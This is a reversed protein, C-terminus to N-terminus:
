AAEAEAFRHTDYLIGLNDLTMALDPRYAAPNQVALEREIGAARRSPPGGQLRGRRRRLPAYQPLSKGLQQAYGRSIPRHPQDSCFPLMLGNLLGM